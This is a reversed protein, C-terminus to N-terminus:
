EILHLGIVFTPNNEDQECPEGQAAVKLFYANVQSGPGVSDIFYAGIKTIKVNNRGEKPPYAPDYFPVLAVRPSLGFASGQVTQTTPDWYANPDKAILDLMGQVTPGVMQGPELQVSDGPAVEYPACSRIWERYWDGGTLPAQEGGLPPLDISWYQGSVVGPPM